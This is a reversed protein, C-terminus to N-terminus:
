LKHAHDPGVPFSVFDNPKLPVTDAGIRLTGEGELIFIAEENACHFHTPYAARGPEVEHWGCGVGRASTQPTLWKVTAGFKSGKLRTEPEVESLNVVNPPRRPDTM